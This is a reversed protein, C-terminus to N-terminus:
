RLNAKWADSGGWVARVGPLFPVAGAGDGGGEAAICGAYKGTRGRRALAALPAAALVALGEELPASGGQGDASNTTTDKRSELRRCETRQKWM